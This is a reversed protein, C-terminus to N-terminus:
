CEGLAVDGDATATKWDFTCVTETHPGGSGNVSMAEEHTVIRAGQRGLVRNNNEKAM